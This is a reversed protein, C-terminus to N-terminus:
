EPYEIQVNRGDTWGLQQLNREFVASRRHDEPDETTLSKLEGIRQM